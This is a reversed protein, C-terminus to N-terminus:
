VTEPSIVPLTKSTTIFIHQDLQKRGRTKLTTFTYLLFLCVFILYTDYSPAFAEFINIYGSHKFTGSRIKIASM